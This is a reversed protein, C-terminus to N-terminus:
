PTRQDEAVGRARHKFGDLTGGAIAGAEAGSSEFFYLERFFDALTDGRDILNAEDVGAGFGGHARQSQGTPKRSSVQQNLERTAIMSM